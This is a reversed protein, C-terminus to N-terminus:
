PEQIKESIEAPWVLTRNRLPKICTIPTNPYFAEGVCKQYVAIIQSKEVTVNRVDEKLVTNAIFQGEAGDFRFGMRGVVTGALKETFLYNGTGNYDGMMKATYPIKMLSPLVDAKLASQGTPLAEIDSTNLKHNKCLQFFRESTMGAIPKIGTLHKFHKEAFLAEFYTYQHPAQTRGIFLFQRGLLFRDYDDAAQFVVSIYKDFAKQAVM